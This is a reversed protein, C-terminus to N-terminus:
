RNWFIVLGASTRTTSVDGGLELDRGYAAFDFYNRLREPMAELEGTQEMLDAAFDELSDFCGAFNDAIWEAADDALADIDPRYTSEIMRAFIADVHEAPANEEIALMLRATAALTAASAYEGLWTAAGPAGDYDGIYHEVDGCIRAIEAAVDDADTSIEIWEGRLSGNNYAALNGIWAQM